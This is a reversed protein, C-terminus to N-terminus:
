FFVAPSCNFRKSLAAIQRKNLERKGRIVESVVGPSGVETLDKQKLGHEHMFFKLVSVPDGEPEPINSKEYAEILNGVYELLGELKKDEVLHDMLYDTLEILNGLEKENEPKGLYSAIESWSKTLQEFVM